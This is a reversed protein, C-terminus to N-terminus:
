MTNSPSYKYKCLFFVETARSIQWDCIHAIRAITKNIKIAQSVLRRRRALNLRKPSLRILAHDIEAEPIGKSRIFALYSMCLLYQFSNLHEQLDSAQSSSRSLDAYSLAIGLLDSGHDVVTQPQLDLVHNRTLFSQVTSAYYDALVQQAERCGVKMLNDFDNTTSM